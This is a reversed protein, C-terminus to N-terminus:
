TRRVPGSPSLNRPLNGPGEPTDGPTPAIRGRQREREIERRLGEFDPEEPGPRFQVPPEEPAPNQYQPPTRWVRAPPNDGPIPQVTNQRPPRRESM